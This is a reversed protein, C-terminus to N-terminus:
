ERLGASCDTTMRPRAARPAPTDPTRGHSAARRRFHSLLWTLGRLPVALVSCWRFYPTEDPRSCQSRTRDSADPLSNLAPSRARSSAAIEFPLLAALAIGLARMRKFAPCPSPPSPHVSSRIQSGSSALTVITARTRAAARLGRGSTSGDTPPYLRRARSRASRAVTPGARFFRAEAAGCLRNPSGSWLWRRRRRRSPPGGRATCAGGRDREDAEVLRQFLEWNM